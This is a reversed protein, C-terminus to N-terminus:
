NTEDNAELMEATVEYQVGLYHFICRGMLRAHEAIVDLTYDSMDPAEVIIPLESM